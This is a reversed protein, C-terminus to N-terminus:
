TRLIDPIGANVMEREFPNDDEFLMSDFSINLVSLVYRINEM